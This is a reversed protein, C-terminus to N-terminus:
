EEEESRQEAEEEAAAEEAQRDGGERGHDGGAAEGAGPFRTRGDLEGSFDSGGEADCVAGTQTQEAHVKAAGGKERDLEEGQTAEQRRRHMQQHAAQAPRHDETPRHDPAPAGRQDSHARRNQRQAGGPRLLGADRVGTDASLHTGDLSLFHSYHTHSQCHTNSHNTKNPILQSHM